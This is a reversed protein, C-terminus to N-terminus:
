LSPMEHLVRTPGQMARQYEPKLYGPLLDDKHEPTFLHFRVVNLGMDCSDSTMVTVGPAMRTITERLTANFKENTPPLVIVVKASLRQVAGPWAGSTYATGIAAIALDEITNTPSGLIYRMGEVSVMTAQAALVLQRRQQDLPTLTLLDQFAFDISNFYYLDNRDTIRGKNRDHELTDSLQKLRSLQSEYEAKLSRISKRLESQM